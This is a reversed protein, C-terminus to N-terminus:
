PKFLAVELSDNSSCASALKPRSLVRECVVNWSRSVCAASAFSTTPLRVVINHLLDEGIIDITAATGYHRLTESSAM